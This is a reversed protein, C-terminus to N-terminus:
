IPMIEVSFAVEGIRVISGSMVETESNIMEDDVYTHNASSLDRVFFRNNRVYFECHKKSITRSYDIAIQVMDVNRGVIVHGDLPYRFIREPNMQDRLVLLYRGNLFVTENEEQVPASEPVPPVIPPAVKNRANKKEKQKKIQKTNKQDKDTKRKKQYWFLVILAIILVIISILKGADDTHNGEEPKLVPEAELAVPQQKASPERVVEPVPMPVVEVKINEEEEKEAVGFPMRVAGTVELEGDKTHLQLLVNKYDGDRVEQPIKARVAYLDSFIHIEDAIDAVEDYDEIMLSKGNTMRSLAFMNKLEAENNKYIHGITYVPRAIEKLKDYLEEKTIGIAKNDVGDSLIVFRTYDLDQAVKELEEYLYDTLYTDQNHFEIEDILQLLSEQDKSKETLFQIEEGFIALSVAEQEPIEEVYRRLIAKINERNSETVSLSNDVMIITHISIDKQVVMEVDECPYQAIQMNASDVTSDCLGYSVVEEGTTVTQMLSGNASALVVGLNSIITLIGFAMIWLRIKRKM